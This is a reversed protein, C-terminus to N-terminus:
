AEDLQDFMEAFFSEATKGQGEKMQELGRKIGKFSSIPLKYNRQM